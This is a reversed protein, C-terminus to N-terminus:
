GGVQDFFRQVAILRSRGVGIADCSVDNAHNVTWINGVGPVFTKDFRVPTNRLTITKM